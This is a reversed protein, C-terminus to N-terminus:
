CMFRQAQLHFLAKDIKEKERKANKNTSKQARSLAHKSKVVILRLSDIGYLNSAFEKTKYNEDDPINNWANM